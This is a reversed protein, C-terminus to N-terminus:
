PHCVIAEENYEKNNHVFNFYLVWSFVMLFVHTMDNYSKMGTDLFIKVLIITIIMARIQPYNVSHTRITSWLLYFIPFYYLFFVIIGGNLAMETYNNQSNINYDQGKVIANPTTLFYQGNNVGYGTFPKKQILKISEIYLFVRIAGSRNGIEELDNHNYTQIDTIKDTLRKLTGEFVFLIMTFSIIIFPSILLFRKIGFRLVLYCVLTMGIGILGKSSLTILTFVVLFFILIIKSRNMRPTLFRAPIFVLYILFATNTVAFSNRNYYLSSFAKHPANIHIGLFSLFYLLSAVALYASITLFFLRFIAFNNKKVNSFIIQFFSIYLLTELIAKLHIDKRVAIFTLFFSFFLWNTNIAFIKFSDKNLSQNALISLMAYFFLLASPLWTFLMRYTMNGYFLVAVTLLLFIIMTSYKKVSLINEM